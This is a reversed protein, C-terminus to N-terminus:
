IGNKPIRNENMRCLKGFWKLQRNRVVETITEELEM